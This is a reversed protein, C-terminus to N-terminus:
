IKALLDIKLKKGNEDIFEIGQFKAYNVKVGDDLDIKIKKLAMHSLAPYYSKIEALQKIYKDQKKSAQAKDVTSTTTHIIYETNKLANEILAQINVLYDSRIRGVMEPTYRHIYILCKFGNKKGSDFLWYIPRKQYLKLHDTYFDNIFYSRIVDRSPGKGGLMEAICTLNNELNEAGYLVEVFKIFKGVIDDEFFDDDCIPVIADEDPKFRLYAKEDWEGGAFVIGPEDLSYRGFLCGVFFSIFSRVAISTDIVKVSVSEDDVKINVQELLHYIQAFLYNIREENEKLKLHRSM